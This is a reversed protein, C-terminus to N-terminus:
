FVRCSLLHAGVLIGNGSVRIKASQRRERERCVGRAPLSMSQLNHHIRIPHLHQVGKKKAKKSFAAAPGGSENTMHGQDHAKLRSANGTAHATHETWSHRRRRLSVGCVHVCTAAASSLLPSTPALPVSQDTHVCKVSLCEAGM